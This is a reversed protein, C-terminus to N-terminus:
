DVQWATHLASRALSPDVADVPPKWDFGRMREVFESPLLVGHRGVYHGLDRRWVWAGDTFLSSCGVLNEGCGLLCRDTETFEAVVPSGALYPVALAATEQWEGSDSRTLEHIGPLDVPVKFFERVFGVRLMILACRGGHSPVHALDRRAGPVTGAVRSEAHRRGQHYSGLGACGSWQRCGPGCRICRFSLRPTECMRGRLASKRQGGRRDPPSEHGARGCRTSRPDIWARDCRPPGREQRARTREHDGLGIRHIDVYTHAQRRGWWSHLQRRTPRGVDARCRCERVRRGNRACRVPRLHHRPQQGLLQLRQTVPATRPGPAPRCQHVPGHAETLKTLKGEGNWDLSQGTSSGAKEVRKETNGTDDYTYQAAVGTCTSGTTTATLAHPRTADYCYTTTVPTASNQKESKRQGSTTYTYSTWYPASGGLNATTRGSTACDTSKPTWAETLHRQADYAFCQNDTGAGINAGDSISTVNGVQDYGYDLNQVAGRTQDDVAADLLRGTGKEYTNTVFVRKTGTATGLQLQGVQSLATYDTALLYGTKGSLENNLGFDNYRYELTEAALGGVAPEKSTGVTGDLRYTTEVTSTPPVAQSSVLPDDSPLTVSTATPRYLNDYATTQRTYAKGNVGDVYRISATAQGKAVSDFTWAALRNADTRSTQWLGTKRGLEDYGYLLSRDEDDTTTDVQDLETYTTVTTGKDPDVSKVQRGFLDYTYSWKTDDPGTITEQKGDPTYSYRVRTYSTGTTAGYATDNPATGAYTRTEATRGLADTITRTANGGQVATTATSDGTYTTTTSWKKVGDVLLTSTAAREAGDFETETQSGGGYPTQTYTSDPATTNDYVDAYTEYVPERTVALVAAEWLVTAAFPM